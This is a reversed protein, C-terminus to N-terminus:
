GMQAAVETGVPQEVDRRYLCQVYLGVLLIPPILWSGAAVIAPALFAAACALRHWAPMTEAEEFLLIGFGLCVVTMDYHFGYPSILFTATAATFVNFSRSLLFVAAIAFAAWGAAGYVLMPTTAQTYWRMMQGGTLMEIQKSAAGFLSANWTHTGFVIVSLLILCAAALAAKTVRRQRVMEVAVLFGLHPKFTLAGAALWSGGFAFLWLAGSFLGVQGFVMSILAAPTLIALIPPFREPLYPKAAVYFLGASLAEWLWFSLKFPVLSLPVAVVLTHPPYPFAIKTYTGIWLSAAARLSPLDYAAAANGSRALKGAVWFSAFDRDALPAFWGTM